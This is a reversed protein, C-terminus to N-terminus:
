SWRVVPPHLQVTAPCRHVTPPSHAMRRLQRTVPLNWILGRQKRYVAFPDARCAFDDACRVFPGARHAFHGACGASASACRAFHDARVAFPDARIACPGARSAFEEARFAFHTARRAFPGTHTAFHDACVAFVSARVVFPDACLAFVIAYCTFPLPRNSPPRFRTPPSIPCAWGLCTNKHVYAQTRAYPEDM